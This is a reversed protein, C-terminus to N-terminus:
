VQPDDDSVIDQVMKDAVAGYRSLLRVFAVDRAKTQLFTASEPTEEGTPSLLDFYQALSSAIEPPSDSCLPCVCVNNRNHLYRRVEDRLSQPLTDIKVYNFATETDAIMFVTDPLVGDDVVLVGQVSGVENWTGM